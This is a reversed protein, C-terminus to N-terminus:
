RLGLMRKNMKEQKILLAKQRNQEIRARQAPTLEKQKNKNDQNVSIENECESSKTEINNKTKIESNSTNKITQLNDPVLSKKLPSPNDPDDEESESDDFISRKRSTTAM